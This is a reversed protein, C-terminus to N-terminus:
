ASRRTANRLSTCEGRLLAALPFLPSLLVVLAEAPRMLKSLLVERHGSRTVLHRLRWKKKKQVFNDSRGVRQIAIMSFFAFTRPCCLTRRTSAKAAIKRKDVGPAEFPHDALWRLLRPSAIYAHSCVSATRLVNRRM